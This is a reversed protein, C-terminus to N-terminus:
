AIDPPISPLKQQLQSQILRQLDERRVETGKTFNGPTEFFVVSDVRELAFMQFLIHTVPVSAATVQPDAVPQFDSADKLSPFAYIVNKQVNPQARNSLTTLMWGGEFSQLIYYDPRQLQGALFTLAPALAEVIQPTSGDQPANDILVQIQQDLNM